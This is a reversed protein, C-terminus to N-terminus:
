EGSHIGVMNGETDIMMAMFGNPGIATKPMAIKGGAAEVRDLVIQLNPNANLYLVAGEMSPKHNPSQAIAGSTKGSEPTFPFAAMKMDGMEMDMMEIDFIAQYYAKARGIELVSIEFWNIANTTSDMKQM